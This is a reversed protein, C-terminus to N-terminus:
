FSSFAGYEEFPSINESKKSVPLVSISNSQKGRKLNSETGILDFGEKSSTPEKPVSSTATATAATTPTTPATKKEETSGKTAATTTMGEYYM